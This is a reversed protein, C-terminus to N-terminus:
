GADMEVADVLKQVDAITRDYDAKAQELSARSAELQSATTKRLAQKRQVDEVSTAKRKLLSQERREEVEALKMGVKALDEPGTACNGIRPMRAAREFPPLFWARLKRRSLDAESADRGGQTEVGYEVAHDLRAHPQRVAVADDQQEPRGGLKGRM